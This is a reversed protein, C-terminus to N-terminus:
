RTYRVILRSVFSAADEPSDFRDGFQQVVAGEIERLTTRGDLRELVFRAVEGRPTLHPVREPAGRRVEALSLAGGAHWWHSSRSVVDGDRMVAIQWRWLRGWGGVGTGAAFRVIDGVRVAVPEAVPFFYNRWVDPSLSTPPATSVAEGEALTEVMWTGVAHLEGSREVPLAVDVDLRVGTEHFRVVGLSVGTGLFDEPRGLWHYVTSTALQRAPTFDIGYSPKWGGVFREYADRAEVPAAFLEARAPVVQGGPKLFRRVATPVLALLGELGHHAVILDVREPLEVEEAPAQIFVIRDAVGNVRAIARAVEVIPECDVAYVRSAGAECAFLAHLGTGTGLDLVVAGPFVVRQIARRFAEQVPRDAVLHLHWELLPVDM